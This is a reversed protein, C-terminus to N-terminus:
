SNLLALRVVSRHLIEGKTNTFGKQHLERAIQSYSRRKGTRPNRRHLRKAEKFLAPNSVKFSKRGEIRKGELKSKRDRAVKLKLVLNSKEFEAISSIIQRIMVSEPKSTDTFHTPTAVPIIQIQRSQLFKVAMEGVLLDRSLRDASSILIQKCGTLACQELVDIFGNRAEIPVTGSVVDQVTSIIGIGHISAYERIETNQREWGDGHINTKTSIRLYAIATNQNNM